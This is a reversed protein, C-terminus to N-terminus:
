SILTPSIKMEENNWTPTFPTDTASLAYNVTGAWADSPAKFSLYWKGNSRKYLSFAGRKYVPAGAFELGAAMTYQGLTKDPYNPEGEIWLTEPFVVMDKNWTPTFPTDTASLAYNVTGAWADSPAKFSLYWKGNSRKYLSFAGRKYVPAGAFELGTAM